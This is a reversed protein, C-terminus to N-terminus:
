RGDPTWSESGDPAITVTGGDERYSNSPARLQDLYFSAAGPGFKQEFQPALDPRSLLMQIQAHNPVRGEAPPRARAGEAMATIGSRRPGGSAPEPAAAGSGPVWGAGREIPAAPSFAREAAAAGKVTQVTRAESLTPRAGLGVKRGMIAGITAMDRDDSSVLLVDQLVAEADGGFRTDMDRLFRAAGDEGEIQMATMRAALGAAEDNTLLRRAADDIGLAEQDERRTRLLDAIEEPAADIDLAGRGFADSAARVPDEARAKLIREARGALDVVDGEKAMRGVYAGLEAANMAKMPATLNFVTEAKEKEARWANAAKEGLVGSVREVTLPDDPNEEGAGTTETSELDRRLRERMSVADRRRQTEAEAAKRTATNAAKRVLDRRQEDPLVALRPDGGDLAMQALEPDREILREATRAAAQRHFAEREAAGDAASIVGDEVLDSVGKDIQRLWNAAMRPDDEDAAADALRGATTRFLDRSTAVGKAFAQDIVKLRHGHYLDNWMTGFRERLREGGLGSMIRNEIEASRRMFTEQALAAGGAERLERQLLDMEETAQQQASALSQADDLRQLEEGLSYVEGAAAIAPRFDLPQAQPRTVSRRDSSFSEGAVILTPKAM